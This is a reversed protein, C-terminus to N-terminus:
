YDWEILNEPVNILEMFKSMNFNDMGTSGTLFMGEQSIYWADEDNQCGCLSMGGTLEQSIAIHNHLQDIQYESLVDMRIIFSSSSSNSVFGAREKM